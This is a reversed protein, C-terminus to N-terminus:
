YCGRRSRELEHKIFQDAMYSADDRLDHWRQWDDDDIREAEALADLEKETMDLLEDDTYRKM